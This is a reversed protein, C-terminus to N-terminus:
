RCCAPIRARLRLASPCSIGRTPGPSLVREETGLGVDERVHQRFFVPLHLCFHTRDEVLHCDSGVVRVGGVGSVVFGWPPQRAVERPPCPEVRVRGPRSLGPDSPWEAVSTDRRCLPSPVGVGSPQQFSWLYRDGPCWPVSSKLLYTYSSGDCGGPPGAASQVQLVGKRM